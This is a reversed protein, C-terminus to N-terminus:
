YFRQDIMSYTHLLASNYVELIKNVTIEIEIKTERDKFALLAGSKINRLVIDSFKKSGNQDVAKEM